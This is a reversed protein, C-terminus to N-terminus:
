SANARDIAASQARCDRCQPDYGGDHDHDEVIEGDVVESARM